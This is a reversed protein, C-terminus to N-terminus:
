ASGISKTSMFLTAVALNNRETPDSVESMAQVAAKTADIAAQMIAQIVIKTNKM